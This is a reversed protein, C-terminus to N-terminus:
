LSRRQLLAERPRPSVHLADRHRALNDIDRQFWASLWRRYAAAGLVESEGRRLAGVVFHAAAVGSMLARLVGHSALPDVVAAADGALVYGPGTFAEARRWTVNAGRISGVPELESFAEPPGPKSTANADLDLRVWAYLGSLVRATWLWGADSVALAPAGDHHPCQGTAYGYWAILKRSYQHVPMGLARALWHRGGTADITVKAEIASGDITVGVVRGARIIPQHAVQPQMVRVGLARARNMLLMNLSARNVQFGLWPGRADHGFAEFRPVTDGTWRIWHGAHRLPGANMVAQFVGLREFVPEVGPHLTEGPRDLGGVHRELLVVQLGAQACAIAAATGAPGGGVVLVEICHDDSPSHKPPGM